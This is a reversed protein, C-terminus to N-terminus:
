SFLLENTSCVCLCISTIWVVTSNCVKHGFVVGGTVYGTQMTSDFLVWIDVKTMNLNSIVQLSAAQKLEIVIHTWNSWLSSHKNCKRDRGEIVYGALM